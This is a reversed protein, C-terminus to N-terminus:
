TIGHIAKSLMLCGRWPFKGHNRWDGNPHDFLTPLALSYPNKMRSLHERVREADKTAVLACSLSCELEKPYDGIRWFGDISFAGEDASFGLLQELDLERLPKEEVDERLDEQRLIRM